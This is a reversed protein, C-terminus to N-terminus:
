IHIQASQVKFSYSKPYLDPYCYVMLIWTLSIQRQRLNDQIKPKVSDWIRGNGILIMAILFRIWRKNLWIATVDFGTFLHFKQNIFWSSVSLVLLVGKITQSGSRVSTPTNAWSFLKM